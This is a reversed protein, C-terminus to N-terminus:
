NANRKGEKWSKFELMNFKHSIVWKEDDLKKRRLIFVFSIPNSIDEMHEDIINWHKLCNVVSNLRGIDDETMSPETGRTLQFLEKFHTVFFKGDLEIIYATPYIIKSTRNAIGIRRLTEIVVSMPYDPNLKVEIM